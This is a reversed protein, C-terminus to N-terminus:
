PFSFANKEYAVKITKRVILLWTYEGLCLNRTAWAGSPQGQGQTFEGEVVVINM